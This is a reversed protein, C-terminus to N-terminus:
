EWSPWLEDSPFDMLPLPNSGDPNILYIDFNGDRKTQFAIKMGDPSWTPNEDFGPSDTLQIPDSGDANMVYLDTNRSRPVLFNYAIQTGDPSWAPFLEWDPSTTLPSPNAGDADMVYIDWGGNRDSSFAIRSGDPSWDAFQDNAATFTLRTLDGGDLAISYIEAFDDGDYDADFLLRSGDPSWAPHGEAVDTTTLRQLESGDSNMIYLEYELDPFSPSPDHRATLFAIQGGDTSLAPSDDFAPDHTLRSVEGSGLDLSYIEPDGDMDSYFAIMGVLDEDPYPQETGSEDPTSTAALEIMTPIVAPVTEEETSVLPNVATPLVEPPRCAALLLGFFILCPINKEM